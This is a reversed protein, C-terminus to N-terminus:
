SSILPVPWLGAVSVSPLARPFIRNGLMRGYPRFRGSLPLSVAQFLTHDPRWAKRLGAAVRAGARVLAGEPLAWSRWRDIPDPDYPSCHGRMGQTCTPTPSSSRSPELSGCRSANGVTRHSRSRRGAGHHQVRTSTRMAIPRVSTARLSRSTMTARSRRTGRAFFAASGTM